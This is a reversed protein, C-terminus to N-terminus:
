FEPEIIEPGISDIDEEYVGSSSSDGLGAPLFYPNDDNDRPAVYWCPIPGDYGAIRVWYWGDKEPFKM